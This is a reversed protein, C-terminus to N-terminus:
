RPRGRSAALFLPRVRRVPIQLVSRGRRTVHRHPASDGVVPANVPFKCYRYRGSVFPWLRNVVKQTPVLFALALRWPRIQDGSLFLASAFGLTGSYFLTYPRMMELHALLKTRVKM